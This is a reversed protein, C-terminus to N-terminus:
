ESGHALKPSRARGRRRKTRKKGRIGQLESEVKILARIMASKNKSALVNACLFELLADIETTFNFRKVVIDKATPPTELLVGSNKLIAFRTDDALYQEILQSVLALYKVQLTKVLVALLDVTEIDLNFSTAIYEVEVKEKDDDTRKESSRPVFPIISSASKDSSVVIKKPADQLTSMLGDVMEHDVYYRIILRCVESVSGTGCISFALASALAITEEDQCIRIKITQNSGEWNSGPDLFYSRIAQELRENSSVEEIMRRTLKRYPLGYDDKLAKFSDRLNESVYIYLAQESKETKSTMSPMPHM